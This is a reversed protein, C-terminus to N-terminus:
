ACVCCKAQSTVSSCGGTAIGGNDDCEGGVVCTGILNNAGMCESNQFRGITYFPFGSIAVVHGYYLELQFLTRPTRKSDLGSVDAREPRYHSRRMYTIPQM